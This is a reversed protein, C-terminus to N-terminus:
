KKCLPIFIIDNENINCYGIDKIQKSFKNIEERSFITTRWGKHKMYIVLTKFPLRMGMYHVYRESACAINSREMPVYVDDCYCVDRYLISKAYFKPLRGKIIHCYLKKCIMEDIAANSKPIFLRLIFNKTGTPRGSVFDYLFKIIKAILNNFINLLKKM